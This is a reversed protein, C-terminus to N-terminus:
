LQLAPTHVQGAPCVRQPMPALEVQTFMWVSLLLQPAQPLTQMAPRTHAAPMHWAFQVPAVGFKHPIPAIDKQVFKWVSLLLQPAQPLTHPVFAVHVVPM